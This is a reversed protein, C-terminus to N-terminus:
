FIKKEEFKKLEDNLFINLEKETKGGIDSKGSKMGPIVKGESVWLFPLVAIILAFVLVGACTIRKWRYRM